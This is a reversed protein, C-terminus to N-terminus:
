DASRVALLGILFRGGSASHKLAKPIALILVQALQHAPRQPSCVADENDTAAVGVEAGFQVVVTEFLYSPSQHHCFSLVM